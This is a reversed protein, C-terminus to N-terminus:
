NIIYIRPLPPLLFWYYLIKKFFLLYVVYWVWQSVYLLPGLFIELLLCEQWYFNFFRIFNGTGILYFLVFPLTFFIWPFFGYFLLSLLLFWNLYLIYFCVYNIFQFRNKLFDLFVFWSNIQNLFFYVHICILFHCLFIM